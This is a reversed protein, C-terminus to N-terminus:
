CWKTTGAACSAHAFTWGLDGANFAGMQGPAPTAYFGVQAALAVSADTATVMGGVNPSHETASEAAGATEHGTGSSPCRGDASV